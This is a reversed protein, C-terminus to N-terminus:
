PLRDGTSTCEVTIHRVHWRLDILISCCEIRSSPLHALKQTCSYWYKYLIYNVRCPVVSLLQMASHFILQFLYLQSLHSDGRSIWCFPSVGILVVCLDAVPITVVYMTSTTTTHTHSVM